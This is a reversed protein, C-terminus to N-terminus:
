RNLFSVGAFPESLKLYILPNAGEARRLALAGTRQDQKDHSVAYGLGLHVRLMRRCAPPVEPGAKGKKKM